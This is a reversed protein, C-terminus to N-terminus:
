VVTWLVRSINAVKYRFYTMTHTMGYYLLPLTPKHERKKLSAVCLTTYNYWGRDVEQHDYKTDHPIWFSERSNSTIGEEISLQNGLMMDFGSADLERWKKPKIYVRERIPPQNNVWDSWKRIVFICSVWSNNSKKSPNLNLTIHTHPYTIYSKYSCNEEEISNEMGNSWCDKTVLMLLWISMGIWKEEYVSTSIYWCYQCYPDDKDLNM